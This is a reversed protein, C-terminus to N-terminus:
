RHDVNTLTGRLLSPAPDDPRELSQAPGPQGGDTRPHAFVTHAGGCRIRRAASWIAELGRANFADPAVQGVSRMVIEYDGAPM